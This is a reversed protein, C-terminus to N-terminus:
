IEGKAKRRFWTARSIGLAEWPRAQEQQHDALWSARDQQWRGEAVRDRNAQRDREREDLVSRPVLVRLQGQVPEILDGIWDRITETQFRYRHEDSGEETALARRVIPRTYTQVEAMTLSPMFTRAVRSIEGSLSDTRTFWSLANAMLFLLKDRHGEPVGHSRMFAHHEAIAVLDLYRSHWLAFVGGQTGPRKSRAREISRVRDPPGSPRPGLVYDALEHLTWRQPSIQWGIVETGSKTNRSGVLRLVRTCDTATRDAGYNALATVIAREVHQWVPLAKPHTDALPWYLHCGRGSLVVYGPRPLGVEACAALAAEVSQPASTGDLDAYVTRLNRLLQVYRWGAFQNVSVFRDPHGANGALLQAMQDTPQIKIWRQGPGPGHWVLVTGHRPSPHLGAGHEDPSALPLQLQAAM